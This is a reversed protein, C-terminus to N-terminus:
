IENAAEKERKIVNHRAEIIDIFSEIRTQLGAEGFNSDVILTTMPIDKIRRMLLEIALSDPGCPFTAMFIIGDIIDKYYDVAGILEKNYKWYVSSSLAVARRCMDDSEPVDAYLVDVGLEELGKIIPEGLLKDYINYPHAVMLVKLKDSKLVEDQKVILEAEYKKLAKLANEFATVVAAPNAG